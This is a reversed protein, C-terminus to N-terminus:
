IPGTVITSTLFDSVIACFIVCACEFTALSVCRTWTFSVIYIRGLHQCFKSWPHSCHYSNATNWHSALDIHFDVGSAKRPWSTEEHWEIFTHSEPHFFPCCIKSFNFVHCYPSFQYIGRDEEGAIKWRHEIPALLVKPLFFFSYLVWVSNM